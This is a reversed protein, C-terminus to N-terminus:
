LMLWAPKRPEILKQRVCARLTVICLGGMLTGTVVATLTLVPQYHWVAASGLLVQAVLLQGTHHAAAGLASAGILGVGRFRLALAMVAWAAVAGCLSYLMAFVGGGFLSGLLVRALSVGLAAPVGECVLATLVALNALGLKAGPIFLPPLLAEIRGLVIGAALLIALRALRSAMPARQATRDRLPM